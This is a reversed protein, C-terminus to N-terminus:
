KKDAPKDAAPKTDGKKDKEAAPKDAPKKDKDAAPKDAPKKDKDADAKAPKPKPLLGEQALIEMSNSYTTGAVIKGDKVKVIDLAHLNVPKKTPKLPGLPGSHTATMTGEAVIYDDVAFFPDAVMKIDTFAKTFTAFFKKGDAKGTMDKPQALDSWTAKEDMPALFDAESKKEFSGYLGKLPEAAKEEEPTGKAAHWEPEGAPMTAVPRAPTKMAGIQSMLTPVDFYRHEQKALGDPSVSVVVAGRVGVAKNSAKTGMFEGKQTGTMVWEHIVVDGKSFSRVIAVKFDPFADFMKQTESAIAERGKLEPMGGIVSVGDAAFTEAFKKADHGNLAAMVTQAGQKQMELM